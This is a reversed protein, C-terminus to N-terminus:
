GGGGRRWPGKERRVTIVIFLSLLILLFLCVCSISKKCLFRNRCGFISFNVSNEPRCHWFCGAYVAGIEGCGARKLWVHICKRRWYDFKDIRNFTGKTRHVVNLRCQFQICPKQFFSYSLPAPQNVRMFACLRGNAVFNRNRNILSKLAFIFLRRIIRVICLFIPSTWISGSNINHTYLPRNLDAKNTTPM